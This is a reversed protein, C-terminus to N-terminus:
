DSMQSEVGAFVISTMDAQDDEAIHVLVEDPIGLAARLDSEDADPPLWKLKAIDSRKIIFM